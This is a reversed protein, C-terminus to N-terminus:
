LMVKGKGRGERDGKGKEKARGAGTVRRGWMAICSCAAM